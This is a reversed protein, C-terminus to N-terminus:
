SSIQKQEEFGIEIIEQNFKKGTRDEYAAIMSPTNSNEHAGALYKPHNGRREMVQYLKEFEKQKWKEEDITMTAALNEWGGMANIVSHIVPNSFKVSQYNGISKVAGLVEIWAITAQDQKKGNLIEIFDVPKPFFRCSQIIKKFANEC